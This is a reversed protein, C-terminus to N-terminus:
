KELKRLTSVRKCMKPPNVPDIGFAMATLYWSQNLREVYSVALPFIKDKEAEAFTKGRSYTKDLRYM